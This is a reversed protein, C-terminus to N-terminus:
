NAPMLLLEELIKLSDFHRLHITDDSCDCEEGNEERIWTGDDGVTYFWGRAPGASILDLGPHEVLLECLAIAGCPQKAVVLGKQYTCSAIMHPHRVLEDAEFVVTGHKMVLAHIKPFKTPLESTSAGYLVTESIPIVIGEGHPPRGISKRQYFARNPSAIKFNLRHYEPLNLSREFMPISSPATGLRDTLKWPLSLLVRLIPDEDESPFLDATRVIGADKAFDRFISRPGTIHALYAEKPIERNQLPGVLWAAQAQARPKADPLAMASLDTLGASQAAVTRDIVYLHAEGDDFEYCALRYKLHVPREEYDEYIGGSFNERYVHCAFWSAVAPNASCDVFWSRWGYHQLIAHTFELSDGQSGFVPRLINCAYNTWKIMVPPVCGNRDFSTGITPFGSDGFHEVQGRFIVPSDFEGIKRRLEEISRVTIKQM